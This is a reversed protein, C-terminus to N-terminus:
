QSSKRMPGFLKAATGSTFKKLLIKSRELRKQKVATSLAQRKQLTFSSMKLDEHVLQRMTRPSMESTKALKKISRKPNRRIKEQIRKIMPKSQQSHSRGSRPCDSLDDRKNFRKLTKWVTSRGISLTKVIDSNSKGAHHLAVIAARNETIKIFLIALFNEFNKKFTATSYRIM